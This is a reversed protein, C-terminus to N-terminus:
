NCNLILNKAIVYGNVELFLNLSNEKFLMISFIDNTIKEGESHGEVRSQPIIM